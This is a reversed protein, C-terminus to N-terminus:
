NAHQRYWGHLSRVLQVHGLTHGRDALFQVAQVHDNEPYADDDSRQYEARHGPRDDMMALRLTRDSGVKM